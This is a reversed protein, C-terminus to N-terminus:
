VMCKDDLPFLYPHLDDTLSASLAQVNNEQNLESISNFSAEPFNQRRRRITQQRKIQMNSHQSLEEPPKAGKSVTFVPFGLCMCM